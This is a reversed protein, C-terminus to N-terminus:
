SKVFEVKSLRWIKEDCCSFLTPGPPYSRYNTCEGQLEHVARPPSCSVHVYILLLLLLAWSRVHLLGGVVVLVVVVM